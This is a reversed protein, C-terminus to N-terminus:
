ADRSCTRFSPKCGMFPLLVCRLFLFIGEAVNATPEVCRLSGSLLSRFCPAPNYRRHAMLNDSRSFWKGCGVVECRFGREGTHTKNHRRLHELRKFRKQCNGCVHSKDLASVVLPLNGRSIRMLGHPALGKSPTPPSMYQAAHQSPLLAISAALSPDSLSHTLQHQTDIHRPYSEPVVPYPHYFHPIHTPARTPTSPSPMTNSRTMGYPSSMPYLPTNFTPASVSTEKIDGEFTGERFYCSPSTAEAKVAAFSVSAVGNDDMVLSAPTIPKAMQHHMAAHRRIIDLDSSAFTCGLYLCSHWIGQALVDPPTALPSLPMAGAVM